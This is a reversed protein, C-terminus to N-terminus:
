GSATLGQSTPAGNLRPPTEDNEEDGIEDFVRDAIEPRSVGMAELDAIMSIMDAVFGDRINRPLCEALLTLTPVNVQGQENWLAKSRGTTM